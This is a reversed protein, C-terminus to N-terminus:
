SNAKESHIKADSGHSSSSSAHKKRVHAMETTIVHLALASYEKKIPDIM